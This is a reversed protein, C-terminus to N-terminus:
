NGKLLEGTDRDFDVLSVGMFEIRAGKGQPGQMVYHRVYKATPSERLKRQLTRWCDSNVEISLVGDSSETLAQLRLIIDQLEIYADNSM